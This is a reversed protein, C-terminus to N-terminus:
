RVERWRLTGAAAINTSLSLICLSLTDQKAGTIDLTLPVKSDSIFTATIKGGGSIYGSSIVVGGACGTSDLNYESLSNADVSTWTPTGGSLTGNYVLEWYGAPASNDFVDFDILSIMGRNVIGNLTLKPRISILPTRTSGIGSVLNGNNSAAFTYAAAQDIGGESVVAMCIQKMTNTGAATGTNQIIARCPLNATNMYPVVVNNANYIQHVVLLSGNIFFGFRVRGVGLWQLDIAFVQGKTLDLTIGSVGSGDMVDFNWSAQNVVTENVINVTLGSGSGPHAGGTATANGIATSYGTGGGTLAIATVAGGSVALVKYTANGGGGSITGTDGAAYGTGGALVAIAPIAGVSVGPVSSRLVISPGNTGDQRFFVGDSDDGYGIETRVNSVQAGLIGTMLVQQSKGPEYRFYAKTQNLAFNYQTTGGTSLTLSAEGSTKAVSGGVTKTQFLLPQTDYQFQSDFLSVPNSSRVRGFADAAQGAIVTQLSGYVDTVVNTYKSGALAVKGTLVANVLLALQSDTPPQSLFRKTVEVSSPTLKTNLRFFSQNTSGNTYVLRFYKERKGSPITVGVSGGPYTTAAIFDWHTGDSSFQVSLGNSASAVDSIVSVQVSEYNTVDTATGTFVLGANLPTTTSNNLDATSPAAVIAASDVVTHLQTGSVCGAIASLSTEAASDAVPIASANDVQVSWKAGANASGQNATVTGSVSGTIDISSNTVQVQVVQSISVPFVASGDPTVIVPSATDVLMAGDATVEAEYYVGGSGPAQGAITIAGTYPYARPPNPSIKAM